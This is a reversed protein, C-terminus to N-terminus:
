IIFVGIATHCDSHSSSRCVVLNKMVLNDAVAFIFGTHDSSTLPSLSQRGARGRSVPLEVHGYPDKGVLQKLLAAILWV